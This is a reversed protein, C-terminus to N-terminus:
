NKKTSYGNFWKMMADATAGKAEQFKALHPSAILPITIPIDHRNKLGVLYFYTEHVYQSTYYVRPYFAAYVYASYQKLKSGFEADAIIPIKTSRDQLANQKIQALIISTSNTSTTLNKLIDMQQKYFAYSDSDDAELMTLFDLCWITPEYQRVLISIDVANAFKDPGVIHLRDIVSRVKPDGDYVMDILDAIRTIETENASNAATIISSISQGTLTAILRRAIDKVPMEKEFYLCTFTPNKWLIEICMHLSLMTKMTGSDGIIGVMNGLLWGGKKDITEIGTMYGSTEQLALQMQEKTHLLQLDPAATNLNTLEAYASELDNQSLYINAKQMARHLSAKISDRRHNDLIQNVTEKQPLTSLNGILNTQDVLNTFDIYDLEPKLDLISSGHTILRLVTNETADLAIPVVQHPEILGNLLCAFLQTNM